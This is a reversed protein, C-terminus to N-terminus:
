VKMIQWHEEYLRTTKEEEGYWRSPAIVNSSKGLFQAWWSFSSNSLIFHKCKSMLILEEYDPLNMDVICVDRDKAFHERVYEKDDSFLYFVPEKIKERMCDMAKRYYDTTCIEHMADGVYDGRRVHVCVSECSKIHKLIESLNEKEDLIGTMESMLLERIKRAYDPVQWYGYLVLTQSKTKTEYANENEALFNLFVGKERLKEDRNREMWIRYANKHKKRVFWPEIVREMRRGTVGAIKDYEEKTRIVGTVKLGFKGLAHDYDARHKMDISNTHSYDLYLEKNDRQALYRAFAYTFLQNCMGVNMTRVIIKGNM